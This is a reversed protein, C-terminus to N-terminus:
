MEIVFHNTSVVSIQATVRANINKAVSVMRAHDKCRYEIRNGDSSISLPLVSKGTWARAYDLCIVLYANVRTFGTLRRFESYKFFEVIRADRHGPKLGTIHHGDSSYKFPNGKKPVPCVVMTEKKDSKGLEKYYRSYGKLHFWHKLEWLYEPLYLTKNYLIALRRKRTRTSLDGIIAKITEKEGGKSKFYQEPDEFLAPFANPISKFISRIHSNQQRKSGPAKAYAYGFIVAEPFVESLTVREDAFTLTNCGILFVGNAKKSAGKAFIPNSENQGPMMLGTNKKESMLMFVAEDIPGPFPANHYIYKKYAKYYKENFFGVDNKKGYYKGDGFAAHHGSLYWFAPEASKGDKFVSNRIDKRYAPWEHGRKGSFSIGTGSAPSVNLVKSKFYRKLQQECERADAYDGMEIVSFRFTKRRVYRHKIGTKGKLILKAPLGKNAM